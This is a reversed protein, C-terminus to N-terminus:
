LYRSWHKAVDGFFLPPHRFVKSSTVWKESYRQMKLISHKEVEGSDQSARRNGGFAEGETGETEEQELQCVCPADQALYLIRSRVTRRPPM